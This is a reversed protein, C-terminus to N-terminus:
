VPNFFDAASLARTPQVKFNVAEDLALSASHVDRDAWSFSLAHLSSSRRWQPGLHVGISTSTMAWGQNRLQQEKRLKEDLFRSIETSTLIPSSCPGGDIEIM